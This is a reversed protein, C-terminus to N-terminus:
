QNRKFFLGLNAIGVLYRLVNKIDNWHRIIPTASHRTLCNVAFATDLRTNNALYILAGIISLIHM